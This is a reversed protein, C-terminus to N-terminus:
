HRVTRIIVENTMTPSLCTGLDPSIDARSKATTAARRIQLAASFCLITSSADTGPTLMEATARLLPTAWLKSYRQRLSAAVARGGEGANTGTANVVVCARAAAFSVREFGDGPANRASGGAPRISTTSSPPSVSRTEGSISAPTKARMRVTSFALGHDWDWGTNAHPQCRAVGVHPAAKWSQRQYHLFREFGIRVGSMKKDKAALAAIQHLDDPVIPLARTQERLPQLAPSKDPRDRGTARNCYRWRLKPIHEFANIPPRWLLSVPRFNSSSHDSPLACHESRGFKKTLVHIPLALLAAFCHLIVAHSKIRGM